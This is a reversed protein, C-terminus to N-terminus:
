LEMLLAPISRGSVRVFVSNEELNKSKPQGLLPMKALKNIGRQNM